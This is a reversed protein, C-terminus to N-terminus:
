RSMGRNRKQEPKKEKRQSRNKERERMREMTMNVEKKPRQKLQEKKVTQQKFDQYREITGYREIMVM